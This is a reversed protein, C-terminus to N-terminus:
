QKVFCDNIWFTKTYLYPPNTFCIQQITATEMWIMRGKLILPYWLFKTILRVDGPDGFNKNKRFDIQM